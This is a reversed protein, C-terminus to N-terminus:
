LCVSSIGFINRYENNWRNTQLAGTNPIENTQKYNEQIRYKIQKNAFMPVSCVFLHFVSYLLVVFLCISYQKYHEQIRYKKQKTTNRYETNWKNTQLAGTNPIEDTQKCVSSIGFVPVSCVFLHFVSYLLVVFLCFFYRICSTNPIEDTQKYHEQIRYKMQKNTTNRYENNWRNTQLAGINPLVSYLLV